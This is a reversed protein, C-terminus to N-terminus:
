RTFIRKVQLTYPGPGFAGTPAFAFTTDSTTGILFYGGFDLPFEWIEYHDDYYDGSWYLHLMDDGMIISVDHLLSDVIGWEQSLQSINGAMDRARVAFRYRDLPATLTYVRQSVINQDSMPEYPVASTRTVSPSAASIAVTDYFIEYTDFHQDYARPEWNVRVSTPGTEVVSSIEVAQPATTDPTDHWTLMSDVANIFTSYYEVVVRFNSLLAPPSGPLWRAFDHPVWLVDPYEDLEIHIFNETDYSVSQGDHCYDAEVNGPAGPLDNVNRITITTDEGYYTYPQAGWLGIYNDIVSWVNQDSALGTVPYVPFAHFLDRHYALDRVPPNPYADDAFCSVQIDPLQLHSAHDYSHLQIIVFPNVPPANWADTVVKSLVAFPHRANRSPDSLTRANNYEHQTSDWMVERGAGAIELIEMGVEQFMQIGVPISMFDDEPHPLQLATKSYRPQDSFVFVGWGKTFGGIVDNEPLTDGNVDVFSSDLRERIIYYTRQTEPESFQVLEYNWRNDNATLVSDVINWQGNIAAGFVITWNALTADGEPNEPIYEFGGFGDTQPDLTEPGYDNYGPRVIRESVHAQWNDYACNSCTDMLFGTLSGFEEVYAFASIPILLSLILLRRFM